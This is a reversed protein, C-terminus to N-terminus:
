HEDHKTDFDTLFGLRALAAQVRWESGPKVVIATPGLASGLAASASSAKLAQLVESSPLHLVLPRDMWTECGNEEWRKLINLFAPSPQSQGYQRLLKVLHTTKLGQKSAVKLSQPTIQYSYREPGNCLIEAFRSVQYRALRPTLAQMEMKGAPNLLIPAMEDPFSPAEAETFGTLYGFHASLKFSQPAAENDLALLGLQFCIVTIFYRLFEAELLDWSEPGLLLAKSERSVIMWTDYDAGKRLFDPLGTRVERVFGEVSFWAGSFDSLAKLLRQRPGRPDHRWTGELRWGPYTKLEDFEIAVLWNQVLWRLAEARPLELFNRAIETPLSGKILGLATAMTELLCWHEASPDALALADAKDPRRLSSLLTCLDDLVKSGMFVFDMKQVQLPSLQLGLNQQQIPGPIQGAIEEPLFVFEKLEDEEKLFARGILARYWLLETSSFPFIGPKERKRKGPGMPRLPGFDRIWATWPTKGGLAKLQQLATLAQPPLLALQEQIREPKALLNSLAEAKANPDRSPAKLGWFSEVGELFDLDQDHLAHLLTTM